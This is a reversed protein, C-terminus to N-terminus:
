RKVTFNWRNDRSWIGTKRDRQRVQWTYLTGNEFIERPVSLTDVDEDLTKVIIREYGFGRFIEIKYAERGGAPRPMRKWKFVLEERNSLDVVAEDKPKVYRVMPTSSRRGVAAYVSMTAIIFLFVFLLVKKMM